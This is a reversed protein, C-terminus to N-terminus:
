RRVDNPSTDRIEKRCLWIHSLVLEPLGDAAPPAPDAGEEGAFAMRVVNLQKDPDGPVEADGDAIEEVFGVTAAIGAGRGEQRCPIM